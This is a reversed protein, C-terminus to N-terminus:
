RAYAHFVLINQSLNNFVSFWIRRKKQSHRRGGAMKVYYTGYKGSEPSMEDTNNWTDPEPMGDPSGAFRGQQRLKDIGAACKNFM